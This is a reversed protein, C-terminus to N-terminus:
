EIVWVTLGRARRVLEDAIHRHFLERYWPHAGRGVAITRYDGGRAADLLVQAVHEEPVPSRLLADVGASPFGAERIVQRMKAVIPKAEERARREWSSEDEEILSPHQASRLPATIAHSELLLPPIPPLVHILGIRARPHESLIGAVYAAARGSAESDDVALLIRDFM